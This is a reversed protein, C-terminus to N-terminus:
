KLDKKVIQSKIKEILGALQISNEQSGDRDRVSVLSDNEEKEGLIIMYPIKQMQAKRIKFNMKDDASDLFHSIGEQNLSAAVKEAYDNFKASVPIIRVIEPSLWVPFKGAYHEILIGMFREVSGLLARHIMVPTKDKGDSDTYKLGFRDPMSFDLQITGLQWKRGIADLVKFDIKPGYFAGDGANIEFEIKASTLSEQLAKEATAWMEDSGISKDPRTALHVLITEFGFTKYVAFLMQILSSIESHIQEPTCFIHADDQSFTRVRFLGALAGSKEYRHLRGFDAYRIPLNRYSRTDTSYILVHTPCNMPKIAYERDEITSFYMNEEYNEYHGSKKWLSVDLVQPTLVEQYGYIRYLERIYNILSNYIFAGKPHFFPNAPAEPHFSFLDLEKGIKRHDRKKAEELQILYEKLEKKDAFATGYIRQLMPNKENGRWYAGAVSLLKFAKLKGTSPVHPGRCLDQFNGQSYLSVENADLEDIIEVKYKEGQSSFLAMAEKKGMVQRKLPFDKAALEVMKTEIKELDEETFPKAVDFDYYFGTEIAPGITV